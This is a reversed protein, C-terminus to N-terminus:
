SVKAGRRSRMVRGLTTIVMGALGVWLSALVVPKGPAYRVVMGVWYHVEKPSLYYDGADFKAGIATKGEAIAKGEQPLNQKDLPWLQLFAEGAREKKPDPRYALQLGFLPRAPEQPFAFSGPGEKTGTVYLYKDDKQKLSQLPVYAGYLEKGEKDSIITLLSFGEKDPFYTFGRYTLNETMYIVGRKKEGGEGVAIEYAARKNDGNVKYGTHMRILTTDGKLRSFSFFRGQRIEDYSQPDANPLTEGETLRIRGEFFFLSNYVIACFIAVFSLHFLIMGFSVLTVRRGWVRGFFCCAVNVVLLILLGNFWLTAFIVRGAEVGRWITVGAICSVLITVLLAMALKASALVDYIKRPIKHIPHYRPEIPYQEIEPELTNEHDTM